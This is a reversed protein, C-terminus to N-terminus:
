KKAEEEEEDDDKRRKALIFFFFGSAASVTAAVGLAAAVAVGSNSGTTVGAAQAYTSRIDGASVQTTTTTSDGIISPTTTSPTGSNATSYTYTTRSTSTSYFAIDDAPDPTSPNVPVPPNYGPDSPDTTDITGTVAAFYVTQAYTGSQVSDNAKAGFFVDQNATGTTNTNIITIPNASTRLANYHSDTKLTDTDDVSYGWYNSPFDAGNTGPQVNATALTPIYSTADSSNYSTLNFLRTSNNLDSATHTYMSVRVGQANNTAASVNVKNRLFDSTWVGTTPTDKTLDGSAWEDPDTISVTLSEIINVQLDVDQTNNAKAPLHVLASALTIIAVGIIINNRHLSRVM